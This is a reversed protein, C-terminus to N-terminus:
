HRIVYRRIRPFGVYVTDLPIFTTNIFVTLIMRIIFTFSFREVIFM